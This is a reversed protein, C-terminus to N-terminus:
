AESIGNVQSPPLRTALSPVITLKNSRMASLPRQGTVASVRAMGGCERGHSKARREKPVGDAWAGAAWSTRCSAEDALDKRYWRQM